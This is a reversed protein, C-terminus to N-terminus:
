SSSGRNFCVTGSFCHRVEYQVFNGPDELNMEEKRGPSDVTAMALCRLTEAGTRSVGVSVCGCRGVVWLRVQAM